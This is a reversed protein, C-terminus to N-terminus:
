KVKDHVSQILSGARVAVEPSPDSALFLLVRWVQQYVNRAVVSEHLRSQGLNGSLRSRAEYGKEDGGSSGCSDLSNADEEREGNVVPPAAVHRNTQQQQDSDTSAGDSTSASSSTNPSADISVHIWGGPTLSTSLNSSNVRDSESCRLAALQFQKEYHFVFGCIATVLEQSYLFHLSFQHFLFCFFTNCQICLVHMTKCREQPLSLPKSVQRVIPSGDNVLALLTMVVSLEINTAHDNRGDEPSNKIYTGLAFVGAARVQWCSLVIGVIIYLPSCYTHM